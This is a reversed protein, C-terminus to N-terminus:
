FPALYVLRKDRNSKDMVRRESVAACLLDVEPDQRLTTYSFDFLQRGDAVGGEKRM